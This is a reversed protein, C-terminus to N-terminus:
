SKQITLSQLDSKGANKPHTHRYHSERLPPGNDMCQGADSSSQEPYSDAVFLTERCLLQKQRIHFTYEVEREFRTETEVKTGQFQEASTM